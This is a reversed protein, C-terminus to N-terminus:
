NLKVIQYESQFKIHDSDLGDLVWMATDIWHLVVFRFIIHFQVAHFSFVIDVWLGVAHFSFVIDVWLWNVLLSDRGSDLHDTINFHGILCLLKFLL